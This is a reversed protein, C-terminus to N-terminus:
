AGTDGALNYVAAAGGSNAMVTLRVAGYQGAIKTHTSRNNITAGSAASFTVQGAGKQIVECTFGVALSNPLTVTIASANNCTVTKGTDGAAVTYTTGTQDNLLTKFGSIEDNDSVAVGSAQITKGGAGDFRPLTNDTSSAPGIMDAPDLNDMVYSLIDDSDGRFDADPTGPRFIYFLDGTQLGAPSATAIDDLNEVTTNAM